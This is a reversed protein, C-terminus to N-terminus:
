RVMHFHLDIDVTEPAVISSYKINDAYFVPANDMTTTVRADDMLVKYIRIQDDHKIKLYFPKNCEVCAFDYFIVGCYECKEDTIPAGCQPCTLAGNARVGNRYRIRADDM